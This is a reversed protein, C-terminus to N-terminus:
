IQILESTGSMLVLESITRKKFLTILEQRIKEYDQHLPCYKKHNRKGGCPGSHMVCNRFFEDGDIAKVVEILRIKGPAKMLSYGGHPGKNSHLIKKRALEQLIKALFPTPLKLDKSIQQIPILGANEPQSAIYIVARIGYRCSSSLM